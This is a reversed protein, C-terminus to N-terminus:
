KKLLAEAEHRLLDEELRQRWDRPSREKREAAARELWKKAEQGQDLRGYALALWLWDAVTGGKGHLQVAEDLRKVADAPRGARLLAAGLMNLRAASQPQEAVAREALRVVV